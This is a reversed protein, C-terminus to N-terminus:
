SDKGKGDVLTEVAVGEDVPLPVGEILWDLKRSEERAKRLDHLNPVASHKEGDFKLDVEELTLGRTEVWYFIVFLVLLIDFSANIMYTKWGIANLAFPFVM